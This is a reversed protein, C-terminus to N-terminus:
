EVLFRIVVLPLYCGASTKDAGVYIYRSNIAEQGACPGDTIIPQNPVAEARERTKDVLFSFVEDGAPRINKGIFCLLDDITTMEDDSTIPEPISKCRVFGNLDHITQFSVTRIVTSYSILQDLFSMTAS